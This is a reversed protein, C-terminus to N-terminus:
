HPPARRSASSSSPPPPPPPPPSPAAPRSRRLRPTVLLAFRSMSGGPPPGPGPRPVRSLFFPRLGSSSGEAPPSPPLDLFNTLTGGVRNGWGPGTVARRVGSVEAAPGLPARWDRPLRGRAERGWKARDQAGFGLRRSSRSRGSGRLGLQSKGRCGRPKRMGWSAREARLGRLGPRDRGWRKGRLGVEKRREGNGSCAKEIEIRHAKRPGNERIVRGGTKPIRRNAEGFTVEKGLISRKWRSVKRGGLRREPGEAWHWRIIRGGLFTVQSQGQRGEERPRKDKRSCSHTGAWNSQDNPM